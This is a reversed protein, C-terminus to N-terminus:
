KGSARRAARLKASRARPNEATEDDSAIRPKKWLPEWADGNQFARKVIRDELSHFSLIAVVGGPAVLHELAGILASLEDLEGNVAIRLAQFTRTAPDVGGVRVPGVARVISRRLDLTTRLEGDGMARKISRAIRRSRREDGYKFIIDALEDDSLRDILDLATEGQSLDMRMDIPGERRFSMGRAPDDLQPSSVGLDACAGDVQEIGADALAHKVSAFNAHLLTAREGFSALRRGTVRLAVEDRDLGVLRGAGAELLGLSHGGRGLTADLYVGTAHPALAAIVESMMVAQHDFEADETVEDSEECWVWEAVADPIVGPLALQPDGNM